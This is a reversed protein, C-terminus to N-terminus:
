SEPSWPYGANRSSVRIKEGKNRTKTKLAPRVGLHIEINKDGWDRGSQQLTSRSGEVICLSPRSRRGRGMRSSWGSKEPCVGGARGQLEIMAKTSLRLHQSSDEKTAVLVSGEHADYPGDTSLQEGAGTVLAWSMPWFGLGATVVARGQQM